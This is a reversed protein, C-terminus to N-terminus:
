RTRTPSSRCPCPAPPALGRALHRHVHQGPRDGRRGPRDGLARLILAARRAREGVGVCHPAGCYAAFEREFAEVEPGPHVPGVRPRPPPPTSSTPAARRLRGRADLFPVTMVAGSAARRAVFEDYDRITTARTTTSRPWCSASRARVLLQRARAVGDAPHLARLLLPQPLLAGTRGGDDVMVDFCGSAAIILQELERHAHGGRSEGGPVDYLYYVRRIEFPVHQEGEIFTLNGRPDHVRPLDVIRCGTLGERLHSREDTTRRGPTRARQETEVPAYPEAPGDSPVSSSM